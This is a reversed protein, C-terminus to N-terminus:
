RPDKRAFAATKEFSEDASGDDVYVIEWTRGTATLVSTLRENLEDLNDAENFVPLAVSIEPRTM